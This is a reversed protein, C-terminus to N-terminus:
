SSAPDCNSNLRKLFATSTLFLAVTGTGTGTRPVCDELLPKNPTLQIIGYLTDFALLKQYVIREVFMSVARNSELSFSPIGYCPM